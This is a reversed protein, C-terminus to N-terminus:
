RTINARKLISVRVFQVTSGSRLGDALQHVLRGVMVSDAELNVQLFRRVTEACRQAVDLRIIVLDLGLIQLGLRVLRVRVKQALKGEDVSQAIQKHRGGVLVDRGNVNHSNGELSQQSGVLGRRRGNGFGLLQQGGGQQFQLCSGLLRKITGDDDTQDGGGLSRQHAGLSLGLFGLLSFSM